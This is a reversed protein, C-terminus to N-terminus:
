LCASRRMYFRTRPYRTRPPRDVTMGKLCPYFGRQMRAISDGALLFNGFPTMYQVTGVLHNNVWTEPFPYRPNPYNVDWDRFQKFQADDDFLRWSSTRDMRRLERALNGLTDRGLGSQIVLNRWMKGGKTYTWLHVQKSVSTPSPAPTATPPAPTATPPIATPEPTETHPIPTPQLSTSAPIILDEGVIILAPDSIDNAAIIVASPVGFRSAIAHLTDGSQVVYRQTIPTPTLTPTSTRTIVPAPTPTGVNFTNSASLPSHRIPPWGVGSSYSRM